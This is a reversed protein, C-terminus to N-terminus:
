APPVLRKLTADDTVIGDEVLNKCLYGIVYERATQLVLDNNKELDEIEVDIAKWLKTNEFQIYPHNM